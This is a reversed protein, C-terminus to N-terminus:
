KRLGTRKKIFQFAEKLEKLYRDHIRDFIQNAEQESYVHSTINRDELMKLWLKENQIWNAQYAHSLTERPTSVEVGEEEFVRKVTKWFLEFTFEFRQITGDVKLSDHGSIKAAEELRQLARELNQISQEIKKNM